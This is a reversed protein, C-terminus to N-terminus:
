ATIRKKKIDKITTLIPLFDMGRIWVLGPPLPNVRRKPLIPTEGFALKTYILPMNLGAKTFFQHTTFFRGINIETPNPVGRSNYTLDVGYLGHPSPDVALIAKKAVTDVTADRVTVGTGTVGTIGSPAIKSMEWYLRERGQAIILEGKQWISMWTVSRPSLYQAATFHGWGEHFDIWSRAQKANVAALSGRGAAGQINRLWLPTGLAEFARTLDSPKSLLMTQPVTLDANEWALYSQFKNQCRRVVLDEPLFVPAALKDRMHSMWAVEEDNQAHIFAIHERKIIRNIITLFQKDSANPVLYQRDTEARALHYPNADTGVLWFPENAARLSRVFNTSPAGGAGAVLIRKM